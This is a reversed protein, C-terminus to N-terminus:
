HVLLLLILTNYHIRNGSACRLSAADVLDNTQIMRSSHTFCSFFGSYTYVVSYLTEHILRATATRCDVRARLARAGAPQQSALQLRAHVQVDTILELCFLRDTSTFVMSPLDSSYIYVSYLVNCIKCVLVRFYALREEPTLGGQAGELNALNVPFNRASVLPELQEEIPRTRDSHAFLWADTACFICYLIILDVTGTSM